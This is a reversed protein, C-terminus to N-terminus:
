VSNCDEIFVTGEPHRPENKRYTDKHHYTCAYYIPKVYADTLM